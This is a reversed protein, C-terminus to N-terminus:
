FFSSRNLFLEAVVERTEIFGLVEIALSVLVVGTFFYSHSVDHLLVWGPAASMSRM